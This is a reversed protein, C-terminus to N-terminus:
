LVKQPPFGHAASPAWVPRELLYTQDRGKVGCSETRPKHTPCIQGFFWVPKLGSLYTPSAVTPRFRKPRKRDCLFWKTHPSRQNLKSPVDFFSSLSFSFGNLPGLPHHPTNTQAAVAHKRLAQRTQSPVLSFAKLNGSVNISASM